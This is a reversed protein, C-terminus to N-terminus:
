VDTEVRSTSRHLLMGCTGALLSFGLDALLTLIRIYVAVVLAAEYDGGVALFYALVLERVGLGAPAFVAVIGVINALALVTVLGSLGLLAAADPLLGTILPYLSIGVLVHLVVHGLLLGPWTNGPPLYEIVTELQDAFFGKRYFCTALLAILVLGLLILLLMNASQWRGLQMTLFQQTTDWQLVLSLMAVLMGAILFVARWEIFRYAEEMTLCGLLVM